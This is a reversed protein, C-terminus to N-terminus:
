GIVKGLMYISLYVLSTAKQELSRCACGKKLGNIDTKSDGCLDAHLIGSSLM